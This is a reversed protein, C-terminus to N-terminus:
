SGTNGPPSNTDSVILAPLYRQDTFSRRRGVAPSHFPSRTAPTSSKENTPM